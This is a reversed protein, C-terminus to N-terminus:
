WLRYFDGIHGQSIHDLFDVINKYKNKDLLYEIMFAGLYYSEMYGIYQTYYILSEGKATEEYTGDLMQKSINAYKVRLFNAYDSISTAMEVFTAYGEILFMSGSDIVNHDNKKIRDFFYGHGPYVEHLITYLFDDYNMADDNKYLILTNENYDDYLDKDWWEGFGHDENVIINFNRNSMPGFKEILKQNTSIEQILQRFTEKVDHTVLTEKTHNPPTTNSVVHIYDSLPSLYQGFIIDYLRYMHNINKSKNVAFDLIFTLEKEYMKWGSISKLYYDYLAIPVSIVEDIHDMAKQIISSHSSESQESLADILLQFTYFGQYYKLVETMINKELPNYHHIFEIVENLVIDNFYIQYRWMWKKNIIM